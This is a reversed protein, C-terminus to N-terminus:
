GGADAVAAHEPEDEEDFGDRVEGDDEARGDLEDDLTADGLTSALGHVTLCPGRRDRCLQPPVSCWLTNHVPCVVRKAHWPELCHAHFVCGCAGFTLVCSSGANAGAACEICPEIFGNRCIMCSGAELIEMHTTTEGAAPFRESERMPTRKPPALVGPDMDVPRKPAPTSADARSAMADPM